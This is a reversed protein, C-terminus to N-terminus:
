VDGKLYFKKYLLIIVVFAVGTSFLVDSAYHAGIIIRSIGVFSGWGLILFGGLIKVSIKKDRLSIMLPLFMWGMATHGSPFSLNNFDPGPPLFWPTFGAYDPLILDRFRVRGCLPKTINVFLVPLIITLLIIVLALTRYNKWDKKYTLITFISMALVVSGGILALKENNLVFGIAVLSGSILIFLLAGVKQQNLNSSASGILVVIGIAIIVFGPIEGYDAGFIGFPNNSDAVAISIQLDYIGFIIALIIWAIIVLFLVKRLPHDKWRGDQAM